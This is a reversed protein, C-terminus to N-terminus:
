MMWTRECESSMPRSRSTSRAQRTAAMHIVRQASASALTERQAIAMFHKAAARTATAMSHTAVVARLYGVAYGARYWSCPGRSEPIAPRPLRADRECHGRLEALADDRPHDMGHELAPTSIMERARSRFLLTFPSSTGARSKGPERNGSRVSNLSQRFLSM